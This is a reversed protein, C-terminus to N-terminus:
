KITSEPEPRPLGSNSQAYPSLSAFFVAYRPDSVSLVGQNPLIKKDSKGGVVSLVVSETKDFFLVHLDKM